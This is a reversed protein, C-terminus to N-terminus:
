AAKDEIAETSMNWVAGTAPDTVAMFLFGGLVIEANVTPFTLAFTMNGIASVPIHYTQDGNVTPFTLGFAMYPLVIEPFFLRFYAQAPESKTGNIASSNVAGANIVGDGGSMTVGPMAPYHTQDAGDVEALALAFALSDIRIPVANLPATNLPHRNSM